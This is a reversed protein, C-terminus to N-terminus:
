NKEKDKFENLATKFLSEIRDLEKSKQNIECSKKSKM